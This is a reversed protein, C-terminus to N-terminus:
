LNLRYIIQTIYFSRMPNGDKDLAPEFEARRMERCAPPDLSEAITAKNLVCKSVTGDPEVIVRLRLIGSEGNRLAESPYNSAIRRGVSQENTWRPLRSMTEHAARDLGWAEVFNLACENMVTVAEGLDGTNFVVKRKGYSVSISDIQNATEVDLRPLPAKRREEEADGETEPRVRFSMNSYILSAGVGETNGLMPMHDTMPEFDGFQVEIRDPRRFREFAPGIAMFGFSSKPGGQEIFLLHRDEGEGFARALRCKEDGFDVSWYSSPELVLTDDATAPAAISISGAALVFGLARM